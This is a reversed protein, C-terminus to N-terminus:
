LEITVLRTRKACEWSCFVVDSESSSGKEEERGPSIEAGSVILRSSYCLLMHNGFESCDFGREGRTWRLNGLRTVCINVVASDRKLVSDSGASFHQREIEAVNLFHRRSM